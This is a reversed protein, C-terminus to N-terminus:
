VRPTASTGWRYWAAVYIALGTVLGVIVWLVILFDIWSGIPPSGPLFTRLPITAFLMAGMWSNFSAEVKRKGRYATIAVFLVLVPMVVLLSLLVLAFALTSASRHATLDVFPVPQVGDATTVTTNSSTALSAGLTWGPLSGTMFITTPVSEKVGDVTTYAIVAVGPDDTGPGVSYHDFPWTEVEGSTLVKVNQTGPIADAAFDVVQNGAVPSIIISIPNKPGISEPDDLEASPKITVEMTITQGVADVAQPSMIVTVGGPKPTEPEGTSGVRGSSAYLTVSAAYVLVALVIFAIVRHRTALRRRPPTAPTTGPAAPTAPTAPTAAGPEAGDTSM